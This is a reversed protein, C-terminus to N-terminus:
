RFGKCECEIRVKKSASSFGFDLLSPAVVHFAPFDKGGQVLQPLVKTVEIFSGPWGHVFLLPIANSVASPQHIFHVDYKDFGNVEIKTIYQPFENLMAETKRWDFVHEWYLALRKIDALPSGRSWPDHTDVIEDPFDTLALKQKLRHIKDNPIAIKFPIIHSM